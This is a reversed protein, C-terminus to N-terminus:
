FVWLFRGVTAAKRGQRPEALIQREETGSANYGIVGIRCAWLFLTRIMM